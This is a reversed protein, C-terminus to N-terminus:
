LLLEAIKKAKKLFIKARMVMDLKASKRHRRRAMENDIIAEFINEWKFYELCILIVYYLLM